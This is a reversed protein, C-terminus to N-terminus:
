DPLVWPSSITSENMNNRKYICSVSSKNINVKSHNLHQFFDIPKLNECLQGFTLQIFDRIVIHRCHSQRNM